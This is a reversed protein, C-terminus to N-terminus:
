ENKSEREDVPLRAQKEPLGEWRGEADRMEEFAYEPVDPNRERLERMVKGTEVKGTAAARDVAPHDPDIHQGEIRLKADLEELKAEFKDEQTTLGDMKRDLGQIRDELNEIDADLERRERRKGDLQEQLQERQRKLRSRLNVDEGYAIRKFLDEIERTIGGHDLKQKAADKVDEPIQAAVMVHDSEGEGM